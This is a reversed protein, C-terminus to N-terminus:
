CSFKKIVTNQLANLKQKLIYGDDSHIKIIHLNISVVLMGVCNSDNM